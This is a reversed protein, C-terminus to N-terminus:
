GVWPPRDDTRADSSRLLLASIREHLDALGLLSLREMVYVTDDTARAREFALVKEEVALAAAQDRDSAQAILEHIKRREAETMLVIGTAQEGVVICSESQPV